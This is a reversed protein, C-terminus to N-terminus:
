LKLMLPTRPCAIFSLLIPIALVKKGFILNIADTIRSDHFPFNYAQKRRLRVDM